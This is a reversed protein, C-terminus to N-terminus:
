LQKCPINVISLPFTLKMAWIDAQAATLPPQLPLTVKELCLLGCTGLCLESSLAKLSILSKSIFSIIQGEDSACTEM